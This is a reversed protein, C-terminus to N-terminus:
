ETFWLDDIAVQDPATSANSEGHVDVWLEVIGPEGPLVEVALCPATDFASALTFSKSVPWRETQGALRVWLTAHYRDGMGSKPGPVVASVEMGASRLPVDCLLHVPPGGPLNDALIVSVAAPFGIRVGKSNNPRGSQELRVAVNTVDLTIVQPDNAFTFRCSSLDFTEGTALGTDWWRLRFANSFSSADVQEIPRPM